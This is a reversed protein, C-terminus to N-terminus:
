AIPIASLLEKWTPFVYGSSPVAGPQTMAFLRGSTVDLRASM